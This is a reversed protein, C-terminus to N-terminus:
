YNNHILSTGGMDLAELAEVGELLDDGLLHVSGHVSVNGSILGGAQGTGAFLANRWVNVDEAAM